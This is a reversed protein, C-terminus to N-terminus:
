KVGVLERIKEVSVKQVAIKEDLALCAATAASQSIVMFVPEMRISGFAIHTASLCFPVLLNACEKERPVISRYSVPYPPFGGVQVDGENKVMGDIVLRSCNHSDMTYAAYGIGDDAKEKGQCHHQTMVYDSRMRRAERIYLQPTFHNNSVFEDKPYGWQQMEKRLHAPMRVDHGIFYLLGKTYDEHAQIIKRREDYTAEAYSYNMGIMDTSFGGCNNIDTKHNPMLAFHMLHWNLSDPTYKELQRILLEYTASDYRPPRTIDIKNNAENTLCLRFNYAQLFSDGSGNSRPKNKSIGWLLGSKPNGRIKYPDVGDPFQHKDRLQFGNLDEKFESSSERGVKYSVNAMAMLDGEYSCDIFMGAKVILSEQNSANFEAQVLINKKKNLRSLPHGYVIEISYEKLYDQFVQTAVHPEFTWKEGTNYYTGIRQYFERALGTIAFKNGIDTQGLGGSSMGGLHYSPDIIIVSKGMKRAAVAAIVGGSTAGYICIDKSVIKQQALVSHMYGTFLFLLFIKLKM